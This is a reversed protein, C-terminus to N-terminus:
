YDAIRVAEQGDEGVLLVEADPLKQGVEVM